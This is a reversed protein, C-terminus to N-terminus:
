GRLPAASLLDHGHLHLAADAVPRRGLVARLAAASADWSLGAVCAASGRGCEDRLADDRIVEDLQEALGAADGSRFSRRAASRRAIPPIDSLVVPTGPLRPRSLPCGSGRPGRRRYSRWRRRTSARSRRTPSSAPSCCASALGLEEIQRRLGDAASLFAEDELAGAIVLRPAPESLMAYGSSCRRWARTPASGAPTCSFASAARPGAAAARARDGGGVAARVRSGAGRARGRDGGRAHRPRRLAAETLSKSM